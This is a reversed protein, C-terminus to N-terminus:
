LIERDACHLCRLDKMKGCLFESQMLGTCHCTYYVTNFSDLYLAYEALEKESTVKSLHFGGVLVDPEFSKVINTIGRHSCGSFLVRKGNECIELYQEHRFDEPLLKGDEVFTFGASTFRGTVDPVAPYLTMDACISYKTDTFILRDNDKLSVDLGIYKDTGNRHPMFAYKNLYVPAKKNIELFTELGGGHDYHGHSLVALDVSALDIGLKKANKAFLDTQGMDFLVSTDKTKIYISLGHECGFTGNPCTNEALVTIEM